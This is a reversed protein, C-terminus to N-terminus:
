AKKKHKKQKKKIPNYFTSQYYFRLCITVLDLPFIIKGNFLMMIQQNIYGNVILIWCVDFKKTTPSQHCLKFQIPISWDTVRDRDFEGYNATIECVDEMDDNLNYIMNTNTLEGTIDDFLSKAHKKMYRRRIAKSPKSNYKIPTAYTIYSRVNTILVRDDQKIMESDTVTKDNIRITCGRWSLLDKNSFKIVIENNTVAQLWCITKPLYRNFTQQLDEEMKNFSKEMDSWMSRLDNQLTTSHVNLDDNRNYNLIYAHM